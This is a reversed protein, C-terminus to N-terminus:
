HNDRDPANRSEAKDELHEARLRLNDIRVEIVRLRREADEDTTSVSLGPIYSLMRELLNSM